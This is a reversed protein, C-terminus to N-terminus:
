PEKKLPEVADRIFQFYRKDPCWVQAQHTELYVAFLTEWGPIQPSIGVRYANTTKSLACHVAKVFNKYAGAQSIIVVDVYRSFIEGPRVTYFRNLDFDADPKANGVVGIKELENVIAAMASDWEAILEECNSTCKVANFQAASLSDSKRASINIIRVSTRQSASNTSM